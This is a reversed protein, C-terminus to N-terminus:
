PVAHILSPQGTKIFSIAMNSNQVLSRAVQNGMLLPLGERFSQRLEPSLALFGGTGGQRVHQVLTSFKVSSLRNMRSSLMAPNVTTVGSRETMASSSKQRHRWGLRQRACPKAFGGDLEREFHVHEELLRPPLALVVNRAALEVKHDGCRFKLWIIGM